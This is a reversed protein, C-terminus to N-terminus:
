AQNYHEQVLMIYGLQKLIWAQLLENLKAGAKLSERLVSEAEQYRGALELLVGRYFFYLHSPWLWRWSELRVLREEYESRESPWRGILRSVLVRRTIHLWTSYFVAILVSGLFIIPIFVFLFDIFDSVAVALDLNLLIFILATCFIAGIFIGLSIPFLRWTVKYRPQSTAPLDSIVQRLIQNSRSLRETKAKQWSIRDYFFLWGMLGVLLLCGILLALLQGIPLLNLQYQFTFPDSLGFAFSFVAIVLWLCAQLIQLWQHKRRQQQHQQQFQPLELALQELDLSDRM